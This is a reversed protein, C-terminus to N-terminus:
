VQKRRSLRSIKVYKLFVGFASISALILGEPGDLFGAQLFYMKLFKFDGKLISLCLNSRKGERVASEAALDTYQMIKRLHTNIDPYTYHYLPAKINDVKGSPIQVSEHVPKKNFYGKQKNFLRLTYDRNWGSHRILRGLYYSLRRIRYGDADPSILIKQIADALDPSVVEDADIVFVWENLTQSVAFQKAPGFGSWAGEFIRCGYERCIELTKDTSGSDFVVIDQIWRISVLCRRINKEENKVILAASVPINKKESM